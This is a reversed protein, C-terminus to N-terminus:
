RIENKRTPHQLIMLHSVENCRTFFRLKILIVYFWCYGCWRSAWMAVLRPPAMKCFLMLDTGTIFLITAPAGTSNNVIKEELIEELVAFAQLQISQVIDPVQLTLSTGQVPVIM